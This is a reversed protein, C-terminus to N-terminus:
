GRGDMIVIDLNDYLGELTNSNEIVHDFEGDDLDRESPDTSDCDAFRNVRVVTLEHGFERRLQEIESKYRLDSIVISQSDSNKIQNIANQTWFKSTVSRKISGELICLARPTWYKNFTCEDGSEEKVEAFEGDLISHIQKTFNDKSDVPYKLIPKEKFEPNHCHDVPIDYQTAVMEKLIDAFAVRTYGFEQILYEAATDKGSGKWGSVAIVRM